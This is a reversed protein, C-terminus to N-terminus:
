IQKFSSYNKQTCSPNTSEPNSFKIQTTDLSTESYSSESRLPRAAATASRSFSMGFLPTDTWCASDSGFAVRAHVRSMSLRLWTGLPPRDATLGTERFGESMVSYRAASAAHMLEAFQSRKWRYVDFSFFLVFFFGDPLSM